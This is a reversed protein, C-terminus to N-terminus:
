GKKEMEKLVKNVEEETSSLKARCLRILDSARKVKEALQDVSIDGSEIERTILQLEEFAETYSPTKSM